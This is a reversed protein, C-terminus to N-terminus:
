LYNYRTVTKLFLGDYFSSYCSITNPLRAHIRQVHLTNNGSNREYIAIHLVLLQPM